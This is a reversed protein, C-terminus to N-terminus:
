RNVNPVLSRRLASLLPRLGVRDAARLFVPHRLKVVAVPMLDRRLWASSSIPNARNLDSPIDNNGKIFAVINHRARLEVISLDLPNAQYNPIKFEAHNLGDLRSKVMSMSTGRASRRFRGGWLPWYSTALDEIVYIGDSALTPFLIEFSRNTLAPIHSADDIIVDFPGQEEVLRLLLAEDTQSGQVISIRDETVGSKDFVDLGWIQARPFYEKWMRLSAGGFAADEPREFGGVGLELIKLAEERRALFLGEYFPGYGHEAKDSGHRRALATLDPDM